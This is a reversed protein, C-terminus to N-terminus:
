QGKPNSVGHSPTKRRNRHLKTCSLFQPTSVTSKDELHCGFMGHFKGQNRSKWTIRNEKHSLASSDAHRKDCTDTCLDMHELQPEQELETGKPPVPDCPTDAVCCACLGPSEGAWGGLWQAWMLRIAGRWGCSVRSDWASGRQMPMQLQM